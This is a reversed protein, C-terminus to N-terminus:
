LRNPQDICRGYGSHYSSEIPRQCPYSSNATNVRMSTSSSTSPRKYKDKYESDYTLLENWLFAILKKARDHSMLGIDELDCQIVRADPYQESRLYDFILDTILEFKIVNKERLYHSVKKKVVNLDISLTDVVNDLMCEFRRKARNPQPTPNDM